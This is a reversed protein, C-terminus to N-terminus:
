FVFNLSCLVQTKTKEAVKTQFMDVRLELFFEAIDYNCV